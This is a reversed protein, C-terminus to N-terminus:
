RAARLALLATRGLETIRYVTQAEGARGPATAGTPEIYGAAHLESVRKWYCATSPITTRSHALDANLDGDVYFASLLRHRQSGARLRAVAAGAHSTAPDSRRAAPRDLETPDAATLEDLAAQLSTPLLIGYSAVATYAERVALAASVFSSM